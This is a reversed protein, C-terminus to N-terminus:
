RRRLLSAPDLTVPFPGALTGETGARLTSREAYTKGELHHLHLLPADEGDLEVRLYWEIGATAYLHPKLVRDMSTSSPSVVETVLVVQTVDFVTTPEQHTVVVDPIFIGTPGLRVNVAEFVWLGAPAAAAIHNALLRSVHQHRGSAHPSMVLSGDLLEIRQDTEGLAVYDDESWPGAHSPLGVSM